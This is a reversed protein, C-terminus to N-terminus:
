PPGIVGEVTNAIPECRETELPGENTEIREAKRGLFRLHGEEDLYGLDGMRHFTKSEKTFKSDLTAGPMRYYGGNGDPRFRLNRQGSRRPCEESGQRFSLLLCSVIPDFCRCLSAWVPAKEQRREGRARRVCLSRLLFHSPSRDLWLSHDSPRTGHGLGLRGGHPPSPAGALFFRKMLPLMTKNEKCWRAIKSGIVPSAFATTVEKNRLTEVLSQACAKAPRSPNMEPIVTTIGLAPNFLAFIPLTAMDVEGEKMGFNEKLMRIQGNFTQEHLLRRQADPQAPPLSLPPSNM